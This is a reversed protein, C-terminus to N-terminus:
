GPGGDVGADEGCTEGLVYGAKCLCRCADEKAGPEACRPTVDIKVDAKKGHVDQLVVELEFVQDMVDTSAWQNPCLPINSYDGIASSNELDTQAGEGTTGYGDSERRLNVTRGDLRVQKTTKDRLAGTIQVGCGDLNTAHVGVFAVRGGQPPFVIALDDGAKLPVDTGDARLTRLDMVVDKQPDGLYGTACSTEPVPPAADTAPTPTDESPCGALTVVSAPCLLLAALLPAAKRM